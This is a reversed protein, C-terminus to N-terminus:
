SLLSLLSSFSIQSFSFCVIKEKENKQNTETLFIGKLCHGLMRGKLFFVAHLEKPLNQRNFYKM